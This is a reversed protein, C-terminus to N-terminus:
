IYFQEINFDVSVYRYKLKFNAMFSEVCGWPLTINVKFFINWSYKDKCQTYVVTLSKM